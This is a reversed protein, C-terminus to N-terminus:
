DPDAFTFKLAWSRHVPSMGLDKLAERHKKSGYGSHQGFGYGPHIADLAAMERDRAVKAIISACSIELVLGDGKVIAEAAATPPLGPPVDRGDIKVALDTRAISRALAETCRRMAILTAGRINMAEIEDITGRAICWRGAAQVIEAAKERRARTSFAKSDVAVSRVLELDDDSLDDKLAYACALVDGALSGRGVEDVGIVLM